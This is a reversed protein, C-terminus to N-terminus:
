AGSEAVRVPEPGSRRYFITIEAADKLLDFRDVVIRTVMLGTRTGLDALLREQNGPRLLELQDYVMATSGEPESAPSRELLAVTTVIIGNLALLEVLGFSGTVVGNLMGLGIMIFLYTLDRIGIQATRYRLIGFVGFLALGLGLQSPVKGLVFCLCFTIINFVYYTFVYDPNRYRRAYILHVVGTVFCLDVLLRFLLTALESWDVIVNGFIGNM